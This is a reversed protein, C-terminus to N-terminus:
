IIANFMFKRYIGFKGDLGNGEMKNGHYLLFGFKWLPMSYTISTFGFDRSISNKRRSLSKRLYKIRQFNYDLSMYYTYIFPPM